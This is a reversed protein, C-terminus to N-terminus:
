VTTHHQSQHLMVHANIENCGSALKMRYLESTSSFTSSKGIQGSLIHV